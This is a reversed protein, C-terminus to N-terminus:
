LFCYKVERLLHLQKVCRFMNVMSNLRQMGVDIDSAVFTTYYGQMWNGSLIAAEEMTVLARLCPRLLFNDDPDKWPTRRCDVLVEELAIKMGLVRLLVAFDRHLSVLATVFDIVQIRHQENGKRILHVLKDCAQRIETTNKRLALLYDARCESCYFLHNNGFIGDIVDSFSRSRSQMASTRIPNDLCNICQAEHVFSMKFVIASPSQNGNSPALWEFKGISWFASVVAKGVASPLQFRTSLTSDTATALSIEDLGDSELLSAREIINTAPRVRHAM